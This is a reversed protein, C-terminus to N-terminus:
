RLERHAPLAKSSPSPRSGASIRRRALSTRRRQKPDDSPLPEHRISTKSGVIEQVLQALQLMTFEGPNGINHPEHCDDGEYKMLRLFGEILDDCYCFSRTQSGDGYITLPQGTLAQMVFNSVVRGDNLAMRPGYTNSSEFSAPTRRRAGIYDM